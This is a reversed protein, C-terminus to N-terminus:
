ASVIYKSVPDTSCLPKAYTGRCVYIFAYIKVVITHLIQLCIVRTSLWKVYILRSETLEYQIEGTGFCNSLVLM